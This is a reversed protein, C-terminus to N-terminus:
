WPVRDATVEKWPPRAADDLAIPRHRPAAPDAPTPPHISARCRHISRPEDASSFRRASAAFPSALAAATQKTSTSRTVLDRVISIGTWEDV